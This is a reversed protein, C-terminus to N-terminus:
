EGLTGAALSILWAPALDGGRSKRSPTISEIGKNGTEQLHEPYSFNMDGESGDPLLFRIKDILDRDMHIRYVIEAASTSLRVTTLSDDSEHETVVPIKDRAADRRVTDITHLGEWPRMIGRFFTGRRYRKLVQGASTKLRATSGTEEIVLRRGIHLRMWPAFNAVQAQVLPIRGVGTITETGLHGEVSFFTWGRRHAPDRRDIIDLRAPWRGSFFSEDIVDYNPIVQRGRPGQDM